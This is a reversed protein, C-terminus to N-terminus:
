VSRLELSSTCWISVQLNTKIVTLPYLFSRLIVVNGLSYVLFRKKDMMQWDITDIQGYRNTECTEM